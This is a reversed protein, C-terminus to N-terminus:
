SCLTKPAEVRQTTKGAPRYQVLHQRYRHGKRQWDLLNEKGCGTRVGATTARNPNPTRIYTEHPLGEHFDLYSVELNASDKEAAGCGTERGGPKLQM